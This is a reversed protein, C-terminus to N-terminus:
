KIKKAARFRVTKKPYITMQERTVPNSVTRPKRILIEFIGRKPFKVEGDLAIGEKVTELVERIEEEAGTITLKEPSMKIYLKAMERRNMEIVM